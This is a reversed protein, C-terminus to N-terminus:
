DELANEIKKIVQKLDAKICPPCSGPAKRNGTIDTYIRYAKSLDKNSVRSSNLIQEMFEKNDMLEKMEEKTSSWLELPCSGFKLKTKYDMFCGCLKKTEGNHEIKEGIVPKGCTRTKDRFHECSECISIRKKQREKTVTWSM